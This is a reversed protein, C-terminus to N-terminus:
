FMIEKDEQRKKYGRGISDTKLHCERCLTIGNNINWLEECKIAEESNTIKYEELIIFMPKLHHANLEVAKGNGSKKGCEQCTFNDRTYVDSRWQRYKTHTRIYKMIPTIGGKWLNSKSGPNPCKCGEKTKSIKDKTEQPQKYGLRYNHGKHALSMKKRAEKTHKYGTNAIRLKGRTKESMIRGSLKKSIKKRVDEPITRGKLSIANALGIKRKTEETLKYGKKPM